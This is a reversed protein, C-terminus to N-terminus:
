ISEYATVHLVLTKSAKRRPALFGALTLERGVALRDASEALKGAFVVPLELEVSRPRDAEVCESSHELRANLMPIGAPTYRLTDREVLRGSITVRNSAPM